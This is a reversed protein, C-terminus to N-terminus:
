ERKFVPGLPLALGPIAKSRLTRRLTRTGTPTRLEATEAEPDLLWVERAGVKFYRKAKVLRDRGATSPSLVEIVLLPRSIGKEADSPIDGVPVVVVDPVLVNIDDIPVDLPGFFVRKWGAVEVLASVVRKAIKQHRITAPAMKLLEGDILEVRLDEPVMDYDARTFLLDSPV